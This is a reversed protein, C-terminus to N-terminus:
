VVKVVVCTYMAFCFKNDGLFADEQNIKCCEKKNLKTRINFLTNSNHHNPPHEGQYYEAAGM